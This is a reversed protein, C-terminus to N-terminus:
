TPNGGKKLAWYHRIQVRLRGGPYFIDPHEALLYDTTDNRHLRYNFLSTQNHLANRPIEDLPSLKIDLIAQGREICSDQELRCDEVLYATRFFPQSELLWYEQNEMADLVGYSEALDQPPIVQDPEVDTEFVFLCLPANLKKAEAFPDGKYPKANLCDLISPALCIRPTTADESPMRAKPVRPTLTYVPDFSVHFLKM